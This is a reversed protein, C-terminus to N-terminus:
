PDFNCLFISAIPLDTSSIWINVSSDLSSIALNPLLQIIYSLIGSLSHSAGYGKTHQFHSRFGKTFAFFDANDCVKEVPQTFGRNM